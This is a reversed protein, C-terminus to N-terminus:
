RLSVALNQVPKLLGVCSFIQELSTEVLVIKLGILDAAFILKRRTQSVADLRWHLHTSKEALVTERNQVIRGRSENRGNKLRPTMM